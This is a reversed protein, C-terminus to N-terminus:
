NYGSVSSGVLFLFHVEHTIMLILFLIFLLVEFYLGNSCTLYVYYIVRSFLMVYMLRGLLWYHLVSGDLTIQVSGAGWRTSQM